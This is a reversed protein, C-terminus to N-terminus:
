LKKQPLVHSPYCYHAASRAPDASGDAFGQLPGSIGDRRIVGAIVLGGGFELGLRTNGDIFPVHRVIFGTSLTKPLDALIESWDINENIIGPNSAIGHEM